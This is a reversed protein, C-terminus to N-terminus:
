GDGVKAIMVVVQGEQVQDVTRSQKTWEEEGVCWHGVLQCCACPDFSLWGTVVDTWKCDIGVM